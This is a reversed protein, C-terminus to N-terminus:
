GWIQRGTRYDECQELFRHIGEIGEYDIVPPARISGGNGSSSSLQRPSSGLDHLGSGEFLYGVGESHTPTSCTGTLTLLEGDNSRNSTHTASMMDGWYLGVENIRTPYRNSSYATVNVQPMELTPMLLEFGFRDDEGIVGRKIGVEDCLREVLALDTGPFHVRITDERDKALSIPLDGLTALKKLDAFVATVDAVIMGFDSSLSDLFGTQELSQKGFRSLCTFTPALHFDVYAGPATGNQTLQAALQARVGAKGNAGDHRRYNEMSDKGNLLFARMAASVQSMVQAPAAPTHSFFRAGAPGGNGFSYGSATRPFVGGGLKPRLTSAFPSTTTIRGVAGVIKSSKEGSARSAGNKLSGAVHQTYWRKAVKIRDLSYKNTSHSHAFIPQLEALITKTTSQQSTALRNRLIAVGKKIAARLFRLPVHVGPAM